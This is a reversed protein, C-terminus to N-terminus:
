YQLLFLSFVFRFEDRRKAEERQESSEESKVGQTRAQRAQRALEVMKKEEEVKKNKAIRREMENRVEVGERATRAALNLAESLKAFNENIQPQQLGRGDAALRQHLSITFAKPNKWNSVCPPIKWDNQEKATVKRPPSHM